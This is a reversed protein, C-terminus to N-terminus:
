ILNEDSLVRVIDLRCTQTSPVMGGKFAKNIGYTSSTPSVFGAVNNRTLIRGIKDGGKMPVFGKMALIKLVEVMRKTEKDDQCDSLCSEVNGIGGEPFVERPVLDQYKSQQMRRLVKIVHYIHGGFLDILRLALNHRLQFDTTLLTYMDDPLVEGLVMVSELFVSKFGMDNQLTYPFSFESTSLLVNVLKKEKTLLIFMQLLDASSNSSKRFYANAEDIIIVVKMKESLKSLTERAKKINEKSDDTSLMLEAVRLGSQFVETSYGPVVEKFAEVTASTASLLGGRSFFIEKLKDMRPIVSNIEGMLDALLSTTSSRGNLYLVIFPKGSEKGSNTNMLNNQLRSLLMSKGVSPGGTLLGMGGNTRAFADIDVIFQERDCIRDSMLFTEASEYSARLYSTIQHASEGPLRDAEIAEILYNDNNLMQLAETLDLCSSFYSTNNRGKKDILGNLRVETIKNRTMASLLSPLLVRQKSIRFASTM